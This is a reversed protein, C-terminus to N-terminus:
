SLIKGAKDKVKSIEPPYILNTSEPGPFRIQDFVVHPSSLHLQDKILYGFTAVTKYQKMFSCSRIILHSFPTILCLINYFVFM